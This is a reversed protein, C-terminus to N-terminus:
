GIRDTQTIKTAKKQYLNIPPNKEEEDDPTPSFM